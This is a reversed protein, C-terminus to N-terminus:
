NEHNALHCSHFGCFNTVRLFNRVASQIKLLWAHEYNICNLQNYNQFSLNVKIRHKKHINSSYVNNILPNVLWWSHPSHVLRLIYAWWGGAGPSHSASHSCYSFTWMEKFLVGWCFKRDVHRNSYPVGGYLPTALTPFLQACAYAASLTPSHPQLGM